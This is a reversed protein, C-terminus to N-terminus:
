CICQLHGSSTNNFVNYVHFFNSETDLRLPHDRALMLQKISKVAGPNKGKM